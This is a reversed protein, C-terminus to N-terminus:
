ALSKPRLLALVPNEQRNLLQFQHRRLVQRLPSTIAAVVFAVHWYYPRRRTCSHSSSSACRSRTPMWHRADLNREMRPKMLTGIQRMLAFQHNLRHFAQHFPMCQRLMRHPHARALVHQLFFSRIIVAGAIAVPRKSAKVLTRLIPFTKFSKAGIM